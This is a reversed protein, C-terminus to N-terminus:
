FRRCKRRASTSHIWLSCRSWQSGRRRSYCDVKDVVTNCCYYLKMCHFGLLSNPIIALWRGTLFIRRKCGRVNKASREGQLWDVAAEVGNYLQDFVVRDDDGANGYSDCNKLYESVCDFSGCKAMLSYQVRSNWARWEWIVIAQYGVALVCVWDFLPSSLTLHRFPGYLWINEQTIVSNFLWCRAILLFKNQM